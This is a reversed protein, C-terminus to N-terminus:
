ETGGARDGDDVGGYVWHPPTPTSALVGDLFAADIRRAAADDFGNFLWALEEETSIDQDRGPATM